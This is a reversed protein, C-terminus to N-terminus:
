VQLDVYLHDHHQDAISDDVTSGSLFTPRTRASCSLHLAIETM